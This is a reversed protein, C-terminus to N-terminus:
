RDTRALTVIAATAGASRMEKATTPARGASAKRAIKRAFDFAKLTPEEQWGAGNWMFWRGWVHVYRVDDEHRAAFQLALEDQSWYASDKAAPASADAFEDLAKTGLEQQQLIMSVYGTLKLAEQCTAHNCKLVPHGNSSTDPNIGVLTRRGDGGGTHMAENPCVAEVKGPEKQVADQGYASLFDAARFTDGNKGDNKACWLAVDPLLDGADQQRAPAKAALSLQAMEIFPDPLLPKDGTSQLWSEAGKPRYHMFNARSPDTCARDYHEIGFADAVVKHLAKYTEEATVQTGGLDKVTVTRALLIVLRYRPLPQHSVISDFSTEAQRVTAGVLIQEAYGKVKRLYDIVQADSARIDRPLKLWRGVAGNDM